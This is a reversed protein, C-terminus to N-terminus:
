GAEKQGSAPLEQRDALGTMGTRSKVVREVIQSVIWFASAGLTNALLDESTDTLPLHILGVRVAALEVLENGVGLASVVGYLAVLDIGISRRWRLQQKLYLWVLGSFIGGGVFHTASSTPIGASTSSPIYWSVAFLVGALLLPWRHPAPKGSLRTVAPPLVLYTLLPVVLSALVIRNLV